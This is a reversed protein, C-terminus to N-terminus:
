DKLYGSITKILLKADVPKAIHADMGAKLCENINEEYADASVAFVPIKKADERELRRIAIVASKGDMVPMRLDLLIFDYYNLPAESFKKVGLDGNEVGDVTVQNENLITKVIEFNLQNDECVLARKGKLKNIYEGSSDNKLEPEKAVKFSLDIKFTTGKNVESEVKIEGDMADVIKKVIALGLGSGGTDANDPHEQAFPEFLHPLFDKSIGSGDDSVRLLLKILQQNDDHNIYSVFEINGGEPTYKTANSLLNIVVKTLSLKDGEVFLPQDYDINSIFNIHKQICFGNIPEACYKLVAVLDFVSNNLQYKANEMRSMVLTDNVLNNLILGSRKIKRLYDKIKDENDSKLALDTFGIIGNLPTRMDHSVSGFFAHRAKNAENAAKIETEQLALKEQYSKRKIIAVFGIVCVVLLISAITGFSAILSVPLRDFLTSLNASDQLSNESILQNLYGGDVNIAKNLISRFTNNDDGYNLAYSLAIDEDNYNSTMFDSARNRNLLWSASPQLCVLADIKGDKLASFGDQDNGYYQINGGNSEKDIVIEKLFYNTGVKKISTTGAKTIRVVNVTLYANSLINDQNHAVYADNQYKALITVENTNLAQQMQKTNHYFLPKFKIGTLKSLHSLYQVLLGGTKSGEQYSYPDDDVLLAVKVQQHNQIFTKESQSYSPKSNRSLPFYKAYLNATFNPNSLLLIGMARDLDHKIDNRNKNMMFYLDLSPFEAIKQAGAVTSGAALADIEGNLLATNRQSLSAYEKIYPTLNNRDCWEKYLDIINSGKLIGCTMNKMSATDGVIYRDDNSRVQISINATTMKTASILFNAERESSKALGSLIDIEGSKLANLTTPLDKYEKFQIDWNAYGALTYYYEIDYGVYHGNEDKDMFDGNNFYGVKVVKRQNEAAKVTTSKFCSLGGMLVLLFVMMYIMTKKIMVFFTQKDEPM